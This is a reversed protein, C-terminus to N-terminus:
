TGQKGPAAPPPRVPRQPGSRPAGEARAPGASVTATWKIVSPTFSPLCSKVQRAAAEAWSRRAYIRGIVAGPHSAGPLASRDLVWYSSLCFSYSSREQRAGAFNEYPAVSLVYLPTAPDPLATQRLRGAAADWSLRTVDIHEAVSDTPDLVGHLYAIDGRESSDAIPQAASWTPGDGEEAKWTVRLKGQRLLVLVHQRKRPEFGYRQSVLLGIVQPALTVLRGVTSVYDHDDQVGFRSAKLGPEAGWDQDVPEPRFVRTHAAVPIALHDVVRGADFLRVEIPCQHLNCKTVVLDLDFRGAHFAQMVIPEDGSESSHTAHARALAVDPEALLTMLGGLLIWLARHRERM